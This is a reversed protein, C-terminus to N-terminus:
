VPQKLSHTNTRTIAVTQGLYEELSDHAAKPQDDILTSYIVRLLKKRGVKAMVLTDDKQRYIVRTVGPTRPGRAWEGVGEVDPGDTITPGAVWHDFEPLGEISHMVQLQYDTYQFLDNNVAPSHQFQIMTM